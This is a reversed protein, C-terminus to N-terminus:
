NKDWRDIHPLLNPGVLQTFTSDADVQNTTGIVMAASGDRNDVLVLGLCVYLPNYAPIKLDDVPDEPESAMYAFGAGAANAVVLMYFQDDDAISRGALAVATVPDPLAVAADSLNITTAAPLSAVHVGNVIAQQTGTTKLDPDAGTSKNALAATANNYSSLYNALDKMPRYNFLPGVDPM